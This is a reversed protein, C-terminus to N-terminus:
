IEPSNHPFFKARAQYVTLALYSSCLALHQLTILSATGLGAGM